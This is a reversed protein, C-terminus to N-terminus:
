AASQRSFASEIRRAAASLRAGVDSETRESEVYVVALAAPGEQPVALPVATAAMGRIVEGRTTIYGHEEVKHVEARRPAGLALKEWLADDILTQMAIGPAGQTVPHRSGPRYLITAAQHRPEVSTLIVVESGELITLFSTMTLEQALATLEPLAAAQLDRSVSHSLEGLRAGLQVAGSTNRAVLKFDELTRLIRYAVSRHVGIAAALEAISLPHGAEALVELVRIGRALTQSHPLPESSGSM